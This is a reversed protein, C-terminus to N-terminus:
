EGGVIQKIKKRATDPLAQYGRVVLKKVAEKKEHQKLFTRDLQYRYTSVVEGGFRRLFLHSGGMSFKTYGRECAWEIARWVILDNPRYKLFEPQSNNAAYEVVGRDAMRFYSGAVVAGRHKAVFIRRGERLAAFRQMMEWTDPEIQKARCWAKHIEYLEALEAETELESVEVKKQRMAKRIDSRRSQSFGKFVEEAGVTLDLLVIRRHDESEKIEFGHREFGAIEEWSNIRILSGSKGSKELLAEALAAAFRRQDTDRRISVQPRVELGCNIQGEVDLGTAVGTIEGGEDFVLVAFPNKGEWFPEKFFEPATYACAYSARGVFDNWKAELESGPYDELILFKM